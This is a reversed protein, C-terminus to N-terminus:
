LFYIAGGVLFSIGLLMMFSTMKYINVYTLFHSTIAVIIATFILVPLPVKLAVSYFASLLFCFLYNNVIKPNAKNHLFFRYGTISISTNVFIPLFRVFSYNLEKLSTIGLSALLVLGIGEAWASALVLSENDDSIKYMYLIWFVVGLMYWTFLVKPPHNIIDNQEFFLFYKAFFHMMDMKKEITRYIQPNIFLVFTQLLGILGKKSVEWNEDM